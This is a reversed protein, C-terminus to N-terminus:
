TSLLSKKKQDTETKIKEIYKDLLKQIKGMDRQLIDESILKDKQAKKLREIDDRRINRMSVKADESLKDVTRALDKRVEETLSPIKIVIGSGDFICNLGLNAIQIGKQINDCLSSDYPRVTLEMNGSVDITAIQILRMKQGYAEVAVNEILGTSATGARIGGLNNIFVSLSKQLKEEFSKENWDM